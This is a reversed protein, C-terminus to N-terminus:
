PSLKIFSSSLHIIPTTAKLIRKVQDNAHPTQPYFRERIDITRKLLFDRLPGTLLFAMSHETRKFPNV